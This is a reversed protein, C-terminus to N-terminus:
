LKKFNRWRAYGLIKMLDRASWSQAGYSNTQKTSELNPSQEQM